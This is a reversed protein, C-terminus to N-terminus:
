FEWEEEPDELYLLTGIQENWAVDVSSIEEETNTVPSLQEDVRESTSVIDNKTLGRHEAANFHERLIDRTSVPYFKRNFAFYGESLIPPCTSFTIYSGVVKGIDAKAFYYVWNDDVKVIFRDKKYVLETLTDRAQYKKPIDILTDSIQETM